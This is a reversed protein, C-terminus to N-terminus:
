EDTSWLTGAILRGTTRAMRYRQLFGAFEAYLASHTGTPDLRPPYALSLDPVPLRLNVLLRSLVVQAHAQRIAPDEIASLSWHADQLATRARKPGVGPVGPVDDGEDGTLAMWSPIHRPAVGTHKFVRDADWYENPAGGSSLRLLRTQRGQPNKGALQFFDKDNSVILVDEEADFWYRGILDDAEFGPLMIQFLNALALFERVQDRETRFDESAPLGYKQRQHSRRNGKYTKLLRLRYASGGGDWCVALRDPRETRIHRAIGDSFVTLTATSEGDASMSERMTAFRARMFLNNADILM